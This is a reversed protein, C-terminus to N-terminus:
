GRRHREILKDHHKRLQTAMRDVAEDLAAQFSDAKAEAVLVTGQGVGAIVEVHHEEHDRKLSARLSVVQGSFRTLGGLKEEVLDRVKTPYDHHLITVEPTM